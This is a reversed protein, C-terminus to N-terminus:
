LLAGLKLITNWNRGTGRTGLKKEVVVSTLKSNGIDVPYMLYAHRGEVRVEEPGKIAAQLAEVAAGTPADKLFVVVLHSPDTAAIEPFPNGAVVEAWEKADRVLFDTELGLRKVAEAELRKELAAPTTQGAHRFVLNGSQLLTRADELGLEGAFARLEAMGVKKHGGVNIGRLLAIYPTMKM